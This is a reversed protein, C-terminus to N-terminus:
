NPCPHGPSVPDCVSVGRLFSSWEQLMADPIPAPENRGFAKGRWVRQVVYLASAGRIAKVAVLGGHGSKRGKTCTVTLTSVPYGNTLGETVPSPGSAECNTRSAEIIGQIFDRAAAKPDAIVQVSMMETWTESTQGPPFMQRTITYQGASNGQIQWGAPPTLVLRETIEAQAPPSQPLQQQRPQPRMQAQAADPALALTALVLFAFRRM